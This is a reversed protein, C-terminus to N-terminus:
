RDFSAQDISQYPYNNKNNVPPKNNSNHQQYARVHRPINYNNYEEPDISNRTADTRAEKLLEQVSSRHRKGADSNQGSTVLKPLPPTGVM